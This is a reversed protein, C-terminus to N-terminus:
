IDKVLAYREYTCKFGKRCLFDVNEKSKSSMKKGDYLMTYEEQMDARAVLRRAKKEDAGNTIEKSREESRLMNTFDIINDKCSLVEKDTKCLEIFKDDNLLTSLVNLKSEFPMSKLTEKVHEEKGRKIDDKEDLLKALETETIHLPSNDVYIRRLEPAGDISSSYTKGNWIGTYEKGKYNKVKVNIM